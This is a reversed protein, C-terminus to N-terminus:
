PPIIKSNFYYVQHRNSASTQIEDITDEKFDFDDDTPTFCDFEKVSECTDETIIQNVKKFSIKKLFPCEM